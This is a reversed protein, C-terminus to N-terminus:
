RCLSYNRGGIQTSEIVGCFSAPNYAAVDIPYYVDSMFDQWAALRRQPHVEGTSFRTILHLSDM